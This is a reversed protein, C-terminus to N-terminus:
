LYCCSNYTSAFVLFIQIVTGTNNRFCNLTGIGRATAPREVIVDSAWDPASWKVKSRSKPIHHNQFFFADCISYFIDQVATLVVGNCLKEIMLIAKCFGLWVAVM